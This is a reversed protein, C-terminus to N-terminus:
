PTYFILIEYLIITLNVSWCYGNILRKDDIDGDWDSDVIGHVRVDESNGHYYIVFYAM